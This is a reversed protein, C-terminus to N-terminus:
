LEDPGGGAGSPAGLQPATTNGMELELVEKAWAPTPELLPWIAVYGKNGPKLKASEPKRVLHAAEFEGEPVKEGTPLVTLPYLLIKTVSPRGPTKEDEGELPPPMYTLVVRIKSETVNKVDPVGVARIEAELIHMYTGGESDDGILQIGDLIAPKNKAKFKQLTWGNELSARVRFLARTEYISTFVRTGNVPHEFQEDKLLKRPKIAALMAEKEKKLKEMEEARLIAQWKRRRQGKTGESTM